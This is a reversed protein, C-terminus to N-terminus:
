GEGYGGQQRSLVLGKDEIFAMGGKNEQFNRQVCYEKLELNKETEWV